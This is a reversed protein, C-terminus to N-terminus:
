SSGSPSRPAPGTGARGALADRARHPFQTCSWLTLRLRGDDEEWRAVAARPEIPAGNLRSNAFTLSVVVECGDFLDPDPDRGMTWCRNTGAEPHVLTEGAKSADFGVVAPLPDVEAHVLEAADVAQAPTEALVVAVPESHKSSSM